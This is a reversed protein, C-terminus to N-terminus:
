PRTMLMTEVETFRGMLPRPTELVTRPATALQAFVSAAGSQVALGVAATRKLFRRRSTLHQTTKIGARDNGSM